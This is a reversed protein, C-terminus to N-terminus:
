EGEMRRGCFRCYGIGWCGERRHREYRYLERARKASIGLEAGIDKFMARYGRLRYVTAGMGEAAIM